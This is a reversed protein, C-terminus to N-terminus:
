LMNVWLSVSSLMFIIHSGVIVCRMENPHLRSEPFWGLTHRKVAAEGQGRHATGTGLCAGLFSFCKSYFGFGGWAPLSLERAARLSLM